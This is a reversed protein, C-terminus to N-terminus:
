YLRKLCGGCRCRYREPQQVLRSSRLRYFRAGCSQCVLLYRPKALEEVGMEQCSATRTIRYGYAERMRQAYAQWSKGHNACGPCTHLIEHALIPLLAEKPGTLLKEAVEIRYSEQRKICCGFRTKARRNIRVKPLVQESIPIELARAEKIVRQLLTDADLLKTQDEEKM